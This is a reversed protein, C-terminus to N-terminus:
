SSNTDYLCNIGICWNPTGLVFLIVIKGTYGPPCKKVASAGPLSAPWITGRDDTIEPCLEIEPGLLSISFM